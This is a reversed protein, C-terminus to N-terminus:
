RTQLVGAIKNIFDALRQGQFVTLVNALCNVVCHSIVADRRGVPGNGALGRCDVDYVGDSDVCGRSQNFVVSCVIEKADVPLHKRCRWHMRFDRLRLLDLQPDVEGM